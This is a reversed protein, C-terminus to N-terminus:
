SLGSSTSKTAADTAGVKVFATIVQSSTVRVTYTKGGITTAYTFSGDSTALNAPTLTGTYNSKAYINIAAIDITTVEGGAELAQYALLINRTESVASKQRADETFGTFRPILVAALIAIIAIVVILEILTFGKRNNLRNKLAKLM